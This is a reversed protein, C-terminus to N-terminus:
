KQIVALAEEYPLEGAGDTRSDIEKQMIAARLSRITRLRVADKSRMADKLDQQLKESIMSNIPVQISTM